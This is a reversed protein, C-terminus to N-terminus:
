LRKALSKLHLAIHPLSLCNLKSHCFLAEMHKKLNIQWPPYFHKPFIFWENWIIEQNQNNAEYAYLIGFLEPTPSGKIFLYQSVFFSISFYLCGLVTLLVYLIVSCLWSSFGSVFSISHSLLLGWYVREQLVCVFGIWQLLKHMESPHM